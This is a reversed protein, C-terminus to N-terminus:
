VLWCPQIHSDSELSQQVQCKFLTFFKRKCSQACVCTFAHGVRLTERYASNKKKERATTHPHTLSHSFTHRKSSGHSDSVWPAPDFGIQDRLSINWQLSVVCVCPRNKNALTWSHRTQRQAHTHTHISACTSRHVCRRM